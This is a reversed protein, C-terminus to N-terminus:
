WQMSGFANLLRLRFRPGFAHIRCSLSCTLPDKHGLDSFDWLGNYGKPKSAITPVSCAVSLM